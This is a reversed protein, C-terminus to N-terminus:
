PNSVIELFLRDVDLGSRPQETRSTGANYPINDNM